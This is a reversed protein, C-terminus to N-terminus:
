ELIEMAKLIAEYDKERMPTNEPYMSKIMNILEKHRLQHVLGGTYLYGRMNHYCRFIVAKDAALQLQSLNM